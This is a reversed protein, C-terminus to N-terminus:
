VVLGRRRLARLLATTITTKGSGSTPAAIVLANGPTDNM